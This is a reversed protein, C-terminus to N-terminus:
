CHQDTCLIPDVHKRQTSNQKAGSNSKANTVCVLIVEEEETLEKEEPAPLVAAKALEKPDAFPLKVVVTHAWLKNRSDVLKSVDNPFMDGITEYLKRDSPPAEAAM